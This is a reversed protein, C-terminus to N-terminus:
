ILVLDPSMLYKVTEEWTQFPDTGFMVHEGIFDGAGYKTRDDILYHGMYLGKRFSLDMRKRGWEGFHKELWLRKETFSYPNDWSPASVFAIEYKSDLKEIAEKAGPMLELEAYFSQQRYKKTKKFEEGTIGINKGWLEAGADFDAVVGDMDIFMLKRGFKKELADLFIKRQEVTLINKM